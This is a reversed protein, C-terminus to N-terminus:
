SFEFRMSIDAALVSHTLAGVSILDVGNEAIERVNELNINGSAEILVDKNRRRILEVAKKTTVAPMNDLMIIDAGASLAERVEQLNKVEVEIKVLHHARDRAIRVAKGVGGVAAIHNDKILVGDFLGFRHNDGGGARVAYKDFFRLGPVTKRTDVIKVGTGKVVASYKATLTAIGSLRQLLNLATREGMLLSKTKGKMEAIVTGSRIKGGEKTLSKFKIGSDLLKFVRESFPLGALVFNEKAILVSHSVHKEPILSSTTIDGCGIDENLAIELTKDVHNWYINSNLDAM